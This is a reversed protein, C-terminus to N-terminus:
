NVAPRLLSTGPKILNVRYAPAVVETEITHMHPSEPGTSTPNYICKM